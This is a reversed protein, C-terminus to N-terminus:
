AAARERERTQKPERSGFQMAGDDIRGWGIM